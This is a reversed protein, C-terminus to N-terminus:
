GRIRAVATRITLRWGLYALPRILEDSAKARQGSIDREECVTLEAAHGDVIAEFTDCCNCTHLLRAFARQNEPHEYIDPIRLKPKWLFAHDAGKFMQRQEAIAKVATELSSGRYTNGFTGANIEGIVLEIGRRISRFNKLRKPWLFWTNYTSHPDSRWREILLQTDAASM